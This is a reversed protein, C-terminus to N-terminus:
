SMASSKDSQVGFSFRMRRSIMAVAFFVSRSFLQIMRRAGKKRIFANKSRRGREKIKMIKRKKEFKKGYHM